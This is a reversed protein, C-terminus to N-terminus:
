RLSWSSARCIRIKGDEGVFGDEFSAKGEKKGGGAGPRGQKKGRRKGGTMMKTVRAGNVAYEESYHPNNNLERLCALAQAHEAFEVFGYGKSPAQGRDDKNEGEVDRVIYVSPVLTKIKKVDFEPVRVHEGVCLRPELDGSARLHRGVDEEDARRHEMGVQVGAAALDRLGAEDLHKAMNKIRIRLPNM